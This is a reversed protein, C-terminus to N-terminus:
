LYADYLRVIMRFAEQASPRKDVDVYQTAAITNIDDVERKLRNEIEDIYLSRFSVSVAVGLVVLLGLVLALVSTLMRSYVTKFM